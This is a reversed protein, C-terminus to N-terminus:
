NTGLLKRLAEEIVDGLSRENQLAYLQALKKVTKNLLITTKIKDTSM